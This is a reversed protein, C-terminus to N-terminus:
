VPEEDTQTELWEYFELNEYLEYSDDLTSMLDLPEDTPTPAQVSLAAVVVVIVLAAVAAPLWAPPRSPRAAGLARARAGRLRARTRADLSDTSQELEARAAAMLARDREDNDMQNM